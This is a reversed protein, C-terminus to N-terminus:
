YEVIVLGQGGAPGGAAPISADNLSSAGSGGGNVGHSQHGGGGGTGIFDIISIPMTTPALKPNNATNDAWGGTSGMGSGGVTAATHAGGGSFGSRGWVGGNGFVNASGGGASGGMGGTFNVDGGVGTGGAGSTAGGTASVFSGFSSTQEAIGVTVAITSGQTVDCVKMAFGGGGGLTNGGGGWVRVRVKSVGIPVTFTGTNSFLEIQGNGFVGTIPNSQNANQIPFSM